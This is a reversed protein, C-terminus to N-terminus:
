IREIIMGVIIVSFLLALISIGTIYRGSEYAAVKGTAQFRDYVIRFGKLALTHQDSVRKIEIKGSEILAIMSSPDAVSERFTKEDLSIMMDPLGYELSIRGDLSTFTGDYEGIRVKMYPKEGDLDPHVGALGMCELIYIAKEEDDVFVAKATPQRSEIPSLMFFYAYGLLLLCVVSFVFVAKKM